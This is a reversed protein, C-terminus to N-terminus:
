HSPHRDIVKQSKTKQLNKVKLNLGRKEGTLKYFKLKPINLPKKNKLVREKRRKLIRDMQNENVIM